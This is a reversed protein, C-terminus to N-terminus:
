ARDRQSGIYWPLLWAEFIDATVWAIPTGTIGTATFALRQMPHMLLEGKGITNVAAQPFPMFGEGNTNDVYFTVSGATFGQCTFRRIGWYYGQPPGHSTTNVTAAGSSLAGNVNVPFTAQRFADNARQVLQSQRDMRDCLGGIRAALGDMSAALQGGFQIDAGITM